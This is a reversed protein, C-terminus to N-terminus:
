EVPATEEEVPATEEEVPATEEEVTATEEEVPVTEEEVPATEEEIPVAEEEVPATEEEVPATEEEVTATEKEVHAVEEEPQIEQEIKKDKKAKNRCATCVGDVLGRKKVIGCTTCAGKKIPKPEEPVKEEGETHNEQKDDQQDIVEPMEVATVVSDSEEGVAEPELAAAQDEQVSEQEMPVTDATSEEEPDGVDM